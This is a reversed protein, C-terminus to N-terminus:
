RLDSLVELAMRDPIFTGRFYYSNFERGTASDQTIEHRSLEGLSIHAMSTHQTIIKSQTGQTDGLLM